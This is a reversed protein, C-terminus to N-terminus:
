WLRGHQLQPACSTAKDGEAMPASDHGQQCHCKGRQRHLLVSVWSIQETGQPFSPAHGGFSRLRGGLLLWTGARDGTGLHAQGQQLQLPQLVAVVPAQVEGPAPDGQCGKAEQSSRRLPPPPHPITTGPNPTGHPCNKCTWSCGTWNAQRKRPMHRRSSPCSLALAPQGRGWGTAQTTPEGWLGQRLKGVATSGREERSMSGPHEWGMHRCQPTTSISLCASLESGAWSWPQPM